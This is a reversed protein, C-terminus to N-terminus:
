RWLLKTFLNTIHDLVTRSSSTGDVEEGQEHLLQVIADDIDEGRSESMWEFDSMMLKDFKHAIVWNVCEHYLRHVDADFELKKMEKAFYYCTSANKSNLNAVAYDICKSALEFLEYQHAATFLEFIAELDIKDFDVFGTYLYMLMQKITAYSHGVITLSSNAKESMNSRIMKDFYPWSHRLLARHVGITQDDVEITFDSDENDILDALKKLRGQMVAAQNFLVAAFQVMDLGYIKTYKVLVRIILSGDVLMAAVEERAFWQFLGWGGGRKLEAFNKEELENVKYSFNWSSVVSVTCQAVVPNSGCAPNLVFLSVQGRDQNRKGDPYLKLRWKIEDRYKSTFEDSVVFRQKVDNFHDLTWTITDEFQLSNAAGESESSM